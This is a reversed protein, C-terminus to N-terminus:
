TGSLVRGFGRAAARGGHGHQMRRLLGILICNWIAAIVREYGTCRVLGPAPLILWSNYMGPTYRQRTSTLPWSLVQKIRMPYIPGWFIGITAQWIPRITPNTAQRSTLINRATSLAEQPM